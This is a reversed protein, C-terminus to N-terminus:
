ATQIAPVDVGVRDPTSVSLAVPAAAWTRPVPVPEAAPAAAIQVTEVPVIVASAAAVTQVAETEPASRM